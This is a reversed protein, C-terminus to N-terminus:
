KHSHLLKFRVDGTLVDRRFFSEKVGTKLDEVLVHDDGYKGVVKGKMIKAKQGHIKVKFIYEEHLKPMKIRKISVFENTNKDVFKVDKKPLAFVGGFSDSPEYDLVKYDAM